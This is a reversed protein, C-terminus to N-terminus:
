LTIANPLLTERGLVACLTIDSQLIQEDKKEFHASQSM